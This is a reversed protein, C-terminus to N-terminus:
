LALLDDVIEDWKRIAQELLKKQDPDEPDAPPLGHSTTEETVDRNILAYHEELAERGLQKAEPGLMRKTNVRYELIKLERRLLM